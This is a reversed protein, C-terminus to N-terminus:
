EDAKAKTQRDHWHKNGQMIRHQQDASWQLKVDRSYNLYLRGDVVSWALPDTYSTYGESMAYACYGGFQPMYKEPQNLFARRNAASQFRWIVGSYEAVFQDSGPTAAGASFYAVPDYGAIAGRDTSYIPEQAFYGSSYTAYGMFAAGVVIIVMAM